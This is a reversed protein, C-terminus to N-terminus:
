NSQPWLYSILQISKCTWKFEKTMSIEACVLVLWWTFALIHCEYISTDINSPLRIRGERGEKEPWRWLVLDVWAFHDFNTDIPLFWKWRSMKCFSSFWTLWCLQLLVVCVCKLGWKFTYDRCVGRVSTCMNLRQVCPANVMIAAKTLYWFACDTSRLALLM